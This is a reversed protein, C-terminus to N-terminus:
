RPGSQHQTGSGTRMRDIRISNGRESGLNRPVVQIEIGQVLRATDAFVDYALACLGSKVLTQFIRKMKVDIFYWLSDMFTWHLAVHM